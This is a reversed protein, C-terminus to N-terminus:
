IEYFNHYIKEDEDWVEDSIDYPINNTTLLEEISNQLEVDKKETVLEIEYEHPRYYTTNNAKFTTPVLDRYVIFPPSVNQKVDFHGYAVPINITALLTYLESHEM